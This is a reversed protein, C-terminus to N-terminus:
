IVLLLELTPQKEKWWDGELGEMFGHIYAEGCFKYLGVLHIKRFVLPVKFGPVLWIEDDERTSRLMLGILGIRTRCLRRGTIAAMHVASIFNRSFNVFTRSEHELKDLWIILERLTPVVRNPLAKFEDLVGWRPWQEFHETFLPLINKRTIVGGFKASAEELMDEMDRSGALTYLLYSRFMTLLQTESLRRKQDAIITRLFASTSSEGTFYQQDLALLFQLWPTPSIRFTSTSRSTPTPPDTVSEEITHAPGLVTVIDLRFGKTLLGRGYCLVQCPIECGRMCDFQPTGRLALLPSCAIVSFDPVWSPLDKHKRFSMDEVWYLLDLDARKTVILRSVAAYAEEISKTYDLPLFGPHLRGLFQHLALAAPAFVKDHPMTCQYSRTGRILYWLFHIFAHEVLDPALKSLAPLSESEEIPIGREWGQKLTDIVMPAIGVARVFNDKLVVSRIKQWRQALGSSHM